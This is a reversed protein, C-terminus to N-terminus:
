QLPTEYKYKLQYAGNLAAARKIIESVGQLGLMWSVIPLIRIIVKLLLGDRRATNTTLGIM